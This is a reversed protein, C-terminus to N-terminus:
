ADLDQHHGAFVAIVYWDDEEDVSDSDKTAADRAESIAHAVDDAEVHAIYTDQGYVHAAYDPYLLIVTFEEM